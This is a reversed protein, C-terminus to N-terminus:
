GLKFKDKHINSPEDDEFFKDEVHGVHALPTGHLKVELKPKAPKVMEEHFKGLDYVLQQVDAAPM